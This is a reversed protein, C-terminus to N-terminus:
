SMREMAHVLAARSQPLSLDRAWRRLRNLLISLALLQVGAGLLLAFLWSSTYVHVGAVLVANLGLWASLGAVPLAIAGILLWRLSRQALALERHLLDAWAGVVDAADTALAAIPDEHAEAAADGAMPMSREPAANM